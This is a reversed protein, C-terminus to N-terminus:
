DEIPAVQDSRGIGIIETTSRPSTKGGAYSGIRTVQKGMFLM